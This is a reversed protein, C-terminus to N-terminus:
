MCACMCVGMCVYLARALDKFRAATCWAYLGARVLGVTLEPPGLRMMATIWKGVLQLARDADDIWRGARWLLTGRLAVCRHGIRSDRLAVGVVRQVHRSEDLRM